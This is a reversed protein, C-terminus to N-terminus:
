SLLPTSKKACSSTPALTKCDVVACCDFDNCDIYKDGDNDKKDTCLEVTNEKVGSSGGTGGTGQKACYSTPASQKCDVLSCCDKDECDIYKDGDNDKGDSCLEVTNEAGSSSGASGGNGGTGSSGGNGGTSNCVTIGPGTACNFDECDAFGNGDNDKGDSCLENTTEAVGGGGTGAGGQGGESGGAGANAGGSGGAGANAGGSGGTQSSGAQSSGAQSSGGQSGGSGGAPPRSPSDDSGSDGCAFFLIAGALALLSLTPRM